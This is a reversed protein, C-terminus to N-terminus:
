GALFGDGDPIDVHLDILEPVEGGALEKVKNLFMRSGKATNKWTISGAAGFDIQDGEKQGMFNKLRNEHILLDKELQKVKDKMSRHQYADNLLELDGKLVGPEAIQYKEKLFSAYATTGEPGPELRQIEGRMDEAANEEGADIYALEREKFERAPLVRKYWFDTSAEIISDIIPQSREFPYVFYDRNDKLIPMEGNDFITLLMGQNVQAIYSPPIGSEWKDAERYGITKLELVGRKWVPLAYKGPEGTAVIERDLSVFLHPYDRHHVYARVVKCKRMLRKDEFNQMMVDATPNNPDWYQWMKALLPESQTGLFMQLSPEVHQFTEGLKEYFLHAASKYDNLGLLAGIESAGIGKMRYALWQERTWGKTSVRYSLSKEKTSM